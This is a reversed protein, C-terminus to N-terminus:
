AVPPLNRIVANLLDEKVKETAPRKMRYWYLKGNQSDRWGKFEGKKVGLPNGVADVFECKFKGSWKGNALDNIRGGLRALAGGSYIKQVIEDTRHPKGDSLLTYLRDTQSPGKKM